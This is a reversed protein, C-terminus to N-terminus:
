TTPAPWSCRPPSATSSRSLHWRTASNPHTTPTTASRPSWADPGGAAKRRHQTDTSAQTRRRVGETQALEKFLREFDGFVRDLSFREQVTERAAETLLRTGPADDLLRGWNAGGNPVPVLGTLVSSAQLSLWGYRLLPYLFVASLLLLAPLMLLLSVTRSKM